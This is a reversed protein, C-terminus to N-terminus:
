IAFPGALVGFVDTAPFSALIRRPPPSSSINVEWRFLTSRVCPRLFLCRSYCDRLGGIKLIDVDIIRAIWRGEIPGFRCLPVDYKVHREESFVRRHCINLNPPDPIVRHGTGGSYADHM